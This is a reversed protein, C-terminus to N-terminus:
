HYSDMNKEAPSSEVHAYVPHFAATQNFAKHKAWIESFFFYQNIFCPKYILPGMRENDYLLLLSISFLQQTTQQIRSSDM